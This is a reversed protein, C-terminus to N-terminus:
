SLDAFSVTYNRQDYATYVNKLFVQGVLWVGKKDLGIIGGVCRGKKDKGISMDAPNIDFKRGGFVLSVFPISQCPYTYQGGGSSAAGPVSAYIARADEQPVGIVSTGTDITAITSSLQLRQGNVIAGDFTVDWFAPPQGEMAMVNLTTFPGVFAAPNVGGITIESGVDSKRSFRSGMVGQQDSTKTLATFFPTAKSQSLSPFGFGMLGDSTDGTSSQFQSSLQTVAGVGINRLAFGGMSVTDTMLDAKVSSGDGFSIEYSKNTPQAHMSQQPVYINKRACESPPCRNSALFFDSSGTDVSVLFAKPPNGVHITAAWILDKEGLNDLPMTSGRHSPRSSTIPITNPQNVARLSSLPPESDDTKNAVAPSDSTILPVSGSKYMDELQYPTMNFTALVNGTNQYYNMAGIIQKRLVYRLHNDLTKQDLLGTEDTLSGRKSLKLTTPSLTPRQFDKTESPYTPSSTVIPVKTSTIFSILFLIAQM